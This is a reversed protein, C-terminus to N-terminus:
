QDAFMTRLGLRFICALHVDICGTDRFPVGSGYFLCTLRGLSKAHDPLGASLVKRSSLYIVKKAGLMM